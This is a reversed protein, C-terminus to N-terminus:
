PAEDNYLPTTVAWHIPQENFLREPTIHERSISNLLKEPTEQIKTIRQEDSYKM